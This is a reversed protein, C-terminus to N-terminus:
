RMTMLQNTYDNMWEEKLIEFIKKTPEFAYVKAGYYCCLKSFWWVFAWADIVVDWQKVLIKVLGDDYFYSGEVGLIGDIWKITKSDYKWNTKIHPFFIDIFDWYLGYESIIKIWWFDYYWWKKNRYKRKLIKEYFNVYQINKIKIKWLLKVTEIFFHYMMRPCTEIDDLWYYLRKIVWILIKM